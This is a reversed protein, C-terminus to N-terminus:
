QQIKALPFYFFADCNLEATTTSRGTISYYGEWFLCLFLVAVDLCLVNHKNTSILFFYYTTIQSFNSNNGAKCFGLIVYYAKSFSQKM